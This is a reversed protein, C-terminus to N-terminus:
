LVTGVSPIPLNGPLRYIVESVRSLSRIAILADFNDTAAVLAQDFAARVIFPVLKIRGNELAEPIPYCFNLDYSQKDLM